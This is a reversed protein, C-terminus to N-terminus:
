SIITMSAIKAHLTYYQKMKPLELHQSKNRDMMLFMTTCLHKSFSSSNCSPHCNIACKGLVYTNELLCTKLLLRHIWQIFTTNAEM